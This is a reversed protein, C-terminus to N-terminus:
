RIDLLCSESFHLRVFDSSVSFDERPNGISATGTSTKRRSIELINDENEDEINEGASDDM